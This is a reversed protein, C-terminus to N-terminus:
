CFVRLLPKSEGILKESGWVWALLFLNVACKLFDFVLCDRPSGSVQKTIEFLGM